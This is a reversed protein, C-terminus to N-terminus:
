FYFEPSTTSASSFDMSLECMENTREEKVEVSHYLTMDSSCISYLPIEVFCLRYFTQSQLANM